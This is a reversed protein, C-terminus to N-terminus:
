IRGCMTWPSVNWRECSVRISNDARGILSSVIAAKKEADEEVIAQAIIQRPSQVQVQAHAAVGALMILLIILQLARLAAATFTM